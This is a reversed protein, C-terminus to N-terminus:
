LLKTQGNKTVRFINDDSGLTVASSLQGNVLILNM